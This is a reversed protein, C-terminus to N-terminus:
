KKTGSDSNLYILEQKPGCSVLQAGPPLDSFQSAITGTQRDLCAKVNKSGAPLQCEKVKASWLALKVESALTVEKLWRDDFSEFSLLDTDHLVANVKRADGVAVCKSSRYWEWADTKAERDAKIPFLIAYSADELVFGAPPSPIDWDPKEDVVKWQSELAAQAKREQWIHWGYYGSGGVLAVGLVILCVLAAKKWLQYKDIFYLVAIVVLATGITVSDNVEKPKEV